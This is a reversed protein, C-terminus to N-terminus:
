EGQENEGHTERVKSRQHPKPHRVAFELTQHLGCRSQQRQGRRDHDPLERRLDHPQGGAVPELGLDGRMQAGEVLQSPCPMLELFADFRTGLFQSLGLLAELNRQAARGDRHEALVLVHAEGPRMVGRRSERGLEELALRVRLNQRRIGGLPDHGRLSLRHVGAFRLLKLRIEFQEPSFAGEVEQDLSEAVLVIGDEAGGRDGDVDALALGVFVLEAQQESFQSM